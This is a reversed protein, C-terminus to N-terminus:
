GGETKRYYVMEGMVRIGEVVKWFDVPAVDARDWKRRREEPTPGDRDKNVRKFEPSQEAYYHEELLAATAHTYISMIGTAMDKELVSHDPHYLAAYYRFRARIEATTPRPRHGPKNDHYPPIHFDMVDFPDPHHLFSMTSPCLKPICQPPDHTYITATAHNTFVSMEEDVVSTISSSAQRLLILAPTPIIALVGQVYSLFSFHYVATVLLILISALVFKYYWPYFFRQQKNPVIQDDPAPQHLPENDIVNQEPHDNRRENLSSDPIIAQSSTPPSNPPGSILPSDDNPSADIGRQQQQDAERRLQQSALVDDLPTAALLVAAPASPATVPAAPRASATVTGNRLKM